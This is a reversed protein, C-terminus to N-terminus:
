KALEKKVEGLVDQLETGVKAVVAANAPNNATKYFPEQMGRIAIISEEICTKCREALTPNKQKIYNYVSADTNVGMYSRQISIINDAFDKVSNLSYPSEIYNQDEEKGGRHPKGIKTNGVEDAISACGDVIQEVVAQYTGYGANARDADNMYKAYGVEMKPMRSADIKGEALIQQKKASMHSLGRWSAELAVTQYMLDRTVGMLYAVKPSDYFAPQRFAVIGTNRNNDDYILFEIAHFGLLGYEGGGFATLLSDLSKASEIQAMREPDNLLTQMQSQDLPWSDIHPDISYEDVPGYLFSESLEWQARAAIWAKCVAKIDTESLKGAKYAVSLANVTTNLEISANALAEYTALVNNQVYPAVIKKLQAEKDTTPTEKNTGKCGALMTVVVMGLLFAKTKM